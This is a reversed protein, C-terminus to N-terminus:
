DAGSEDGAGAEAEEENHSDDVDNQPIVVPLPLLPVIPAVPPPHRNAMREQHRLKRCHKMVKKYFTNTNLNPHFVEDFLNYWDLPNEQIRLVFHAFEICPYQIHPINEFFICKHLLIKSLNDMSNILLVLHRFEGEDM